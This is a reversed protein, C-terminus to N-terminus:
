NISQMDKFARRVDFYNICRSDRAYAALLSKDCLHNIIRPTGKSNSYIKKLAPATFYPSGKAGALTLRYEIYRKTQDKSLPLIDYHVLIRQKFQRLCKQNLKEKLEPQGFLIIQLLKQNNTELNSLLRLQELIEFSLNQAEDIMFIINKGSEVYRLLGDQLQTMPDKGSQLQYDCDIGLERFLVWPLQEADIRPNLLMATEFSTSDLEELLKRSVTTKGCGVEGTIVIFGKRQSIGYHLHALAEQHQPTLFLFKPDPTVHFPMETLGFFDQYM